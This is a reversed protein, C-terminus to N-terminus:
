KQTSKPAPKAPKPAPKTAPKKQAAAPKAAPKQAPKATQTAPKQAANQKLNSNPAPTAPKAAPKATQTETKAAAELRANQLAAHLQTNEVELLALHNKLGSIERSTYYIQSTIYIKSCFVGLLVAICAYTLLLQKFTINVRSRLNHNIERSNLAFFNLNSNLGNLLM